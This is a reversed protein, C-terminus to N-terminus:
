RGELTQYAWLCALFFAREPSQASLKDFYAVVLKSQDILDIVDSRVFQSSMDYDALHRQEQLELTTKAIQAVERPISFNPLSSQLSAKLTGGAFSKCAAKIGKHTYARALVRRFAARSDSTGLSQRISQGVLYHFLAYHTASGGASNGILVIRSPNPYSNVIVDLAASLNKLGRFSRGDVDRDGAFLTGDCYPLYGVNYQATPNDPTAPSLIGLPPIGSTTDVAECSTPACFGGGQLFIMLESGGGDRTTMNFAEGTYCGPGGNNGDFVYNTVGAGIANSSMPAYVGLYRGIGQDFLESFPGDYETASDTEPTPDSESVPAAENSETEEDGCGILGLLLFAATYGKLRM